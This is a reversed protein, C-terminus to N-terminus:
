ERVLSKPPGPVMCTELASRRGGNFSGWYLKGPQRMSRSGARPRSAQPLVDFTSGLRRRESGSRGSRLAAWYVKGATSDIALGIPNGGAEPPGFLTSATGSGDLNAVRVEDSHQNTWYIKGAARDIVIGSPGSGPPEAFLTAAVGTGDLNAVRISSATYNAWYIKGAARDLAVGCM